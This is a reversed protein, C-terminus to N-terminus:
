QGHVRQCVRPKQLCSISRTSITQLRRWDKGNSFCPVSGGALSASYREIIVSTACIWAIMLAKELAVRAAMLAMEQAVVAARAGLTVVALPARTLSRLIGDWILCFYMMQKM